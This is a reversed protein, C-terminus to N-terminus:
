EQAKGNREWEAGCRPCKVHTPSVRKGRRHGFLKCQAAALLQAYTM